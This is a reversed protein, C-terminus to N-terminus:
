QGGQGREEVPHHRSSQVPVEEAITLLYHHFFNFSKRPVVVVTVVTVVTVVVVMVPGSVTFKDPVLNEM